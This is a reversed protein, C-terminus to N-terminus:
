AFFLLNRRMTMSRTAIMMRMSRPRTKFTVSQGRIRVRVGEERGWVEERGIVIQPRDTMRERSPWEADRKKEKPVDVARRMAVAIKM